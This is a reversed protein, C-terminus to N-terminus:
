FTSHGGRISPIHWSKSHLLNAWTTPHNYM